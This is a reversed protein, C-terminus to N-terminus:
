LFPRLDTGLKDELHILKKAIDKSFEDAAAYENLYRSLAKVGMGCGDTMLDAITHDSEHMILKMDTKMKSMTEAMAPPDKGKDGFRDLHGRIESSLTQHDARSDTLLTRLSGSRVYELVDDISSIGMKAGADCERLLKITDQEIM